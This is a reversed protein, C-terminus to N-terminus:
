GFCSATRSRMSDPPPKVGSGGDCRGCLSSPESSSVSAVGVVYNADGNQELAFTILVFYLASPSAAAEGRDDRSKRSRNGTVLLPRRGPEPLHEHAPMGGIGPRMAHRGSLRVRVLNRAKHIDPGCGAPRSSLPDRGIIRRGLSWQKALRSGLETHDINFAKWELEPFSSAEQAEAFVTALKAPESQALLPLAIDHM